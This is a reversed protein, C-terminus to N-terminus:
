RRKTTSSSRPPRSRGSRRGSRITRAPSAPPTSATRLTTTEGNLREARAAAFHTRDVTDVRLSEVFGDSFDDTIDIQEAYTSAGTPDTLKVRGAAILRRTPKIYTVKEAQLTYGNYYISVNGVASVTHNDYDYVLQDSEVLMQAGAKAKVNPVSLQPTAHGPAVLGVSLIAAACARAVAVAVSGGILRGLWGMFAGGKM